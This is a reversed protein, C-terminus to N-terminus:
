ICPPVHNRETRNCLTISNQLPCGGQCHIRNPCTVCSNELSSRFLDFVRGNWAEEITNRNLDVFWKPEQNAFSCPMMHMEADIYASFRGGECFDLTNLNINETFNVIGACSCSDFGIHFPFKGNDIVSFFEQVKPDSVDLVNKRLGLGVPKYLLFVIANIGPRYNGSKLIQIARDITHKGLVYHINTVVGVDLLMRVAKDTYDAFHESVAVAGAYERCIRAKEETFAIGSTTFNPVMGYARTMRMIEEFDEHTDPDGAGGLAIQLTKKECQRMIKEYKELSMNPGTRGAAKQYCGVKCQNACVCTQMIGIDLLEPFSAMFPDVGTDNGDGDLIGSRLYFGSRMDFISRFRYEKDYKCVLSYKRKEKAM